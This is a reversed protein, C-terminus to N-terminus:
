TSFLDLPAATCTHGSEDDRLQEKQQSRGTMTMLLTRPCLYGTSEVLFGHMLRQM